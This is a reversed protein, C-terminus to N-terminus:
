KPAAFTNSASFATFNCSADLTALSTTGSLSTNTSLLTLTNGEKVVVPPIVSFPNSHSLPNFESGYTSFENRIGNFASASGYTGFSNNISDISGSGGIFGLYVPPENQSYIRSGDLDGCTLDEFSVEKNGITSLNSLYGGPAELFNMVISTYGSFIDLSWKGAGTGMAGTLGKEVNGNELDQATIEISNFPPLTLTVSSSSSSGNDDVGGILFTNNINATNILRLKSVQNLNKGPNFIPVNHIKGYVEGVTADVQTLFGEPTRIYASVKIRQQTTVQLRWNGVGDGFAGTLGKSINGNEIDSSNFNKSARAPITLTLNSDGINGADDIGVVTVTVADSNNNQLRVFGQQLDNSAPPVFNLNQTLAFANSTFYALVATIIIKKM